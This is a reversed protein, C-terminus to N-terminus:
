KGPVAFFLLFKRMDKRYGLRASRDLLIPKTCSNTSASKSLAENFDARVQIFEARVGAFGTAMEARLTEKADSLRSNSYILLSLPLIVALALTLLQTDTM